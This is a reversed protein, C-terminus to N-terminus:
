FYFKAALQAIRPLGQIAGITGFSSGDALNGDPNAFNTHNFINYLEARLEVRMSERIPFQKTLQFDWNELGPGHVSNRGANGGTEPNFPLTCGATPAAPTCASSYLSPSFWLNNNTSRPNMLHVPGSVNPADWCAVFVVLMPTGPCTASSTGLLGFDNNAIHVPLGSQFTTIGSIRWGNVVRDLMAHNATKPIKPLDYSYQISLRHREDYSSNGYYRRFNFPDTGLPGFALDEFSSSWDLAHSYTYSTLFSLGHTPRKNVSIQLSNYNSNAMSAMTGISGFITSDYKHFPPLNYPAQWGVFGQSNAACAAVAACQGPLGPNREYWTELRHGVSGVYAISLITQAPLQREITVNYNEAYPSRFNPDITALGFPEFFGFSVNSGAAPATFPYKNAISGSAACFPSSIAAGTQSICRVDTFPATFSSVGGVDAIGFDTIAFPPDTLFQLTLEEEGRNYYIGFGARISMKGAGGSIWGWDPSWAFGIRPALDTYHTTYGSSSCGKDGPFTLGAPATAFVTSQQSPVFCNIALSHNTFDNLPTEIDWGTGFTLTLNPKLKWQDQVYSYHEYTRANILNGSSQTYSSPFGLLYDALPNGTSFPGGGNFTFSGNNNSFFPNHVEFRRAQYGLKITHKGHVYSFNDDVQYTEDVRPQPGFISFGLQFNVDAGAVTVAPLGASATNQPNIGTFGASSPLVAKQPEVADFNLRQFGGRFENLMNGSLTHTWSFTHEQTHAQQTEGFGPLNAGVFPLTDTRPDSEFLSYEWISDHPSFTHDIRFLEQDTKGAETPNFTFKNGGSNPGPLFSKALSAAATNFDQTPIVNTSFLASYATGAACPTGSSVPCASASDGFLPIPSSNASARIFSCTPTPGTACPSASFDGTQEAAPGVTPLTFGQPQAFRSGQYSFFFFTHNKWVPGGITGGFENQHFISPTKQFFSRGNLSTDRYFNFVDGHFKNTGSKITANLIAGSNRGFEPNITSTVMRFEEIADPNPVVNVVNLAIDASDMGNILYSNQQSQSGNTSFASSPGFRDSSGAVGPELQQLNVWNRGALPADVIVQAGIVTGLQISTSEVQVPNAEVTIVESLTGLELKVDLVYIENVDLHIKTAAFSKFGSKEAKVTYDGIPLQLFVYTGDKSSVAHYDVGTGVNTATLAVDAVLGGSSDTATGRISGYLNDARVPNAQCLALIFVASVVVFLPIQSVRRM